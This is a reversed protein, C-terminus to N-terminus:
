WNAMEQLEDVILGSFALHLSAGLMTMTQYVM